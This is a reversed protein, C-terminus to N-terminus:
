HHLWGRYPRAFGTLWAAAGFLFRHHFIIHFKGMVPGVFTAASFCAIAV